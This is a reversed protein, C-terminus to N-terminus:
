NAAAEVPVLADDPHDTRRTLDLGRRAEHNGIGVIRVVPMKGLLPVMDALLMPLGAIGFRQDLEGLFAGIFDSNRKHDPDDRVVPYRALHPQVPLVQTIRRAGEKNMVALPFVAYLRGLIVKRPRKLRPSFPSLALALMM